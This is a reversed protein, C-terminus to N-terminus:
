PLSLPKQATVTIRSSFGFRSLNKYIRFLLYLLRPNKNLFKCISHGNEAGIKISFLFDRKNSQYKFKLSVFGTNKLLYLIHKKSPLYLHTPLQLVYSYKRFLTFSGNALPLTIYIVGGPPLLHFCKKLFKWPNYVHEIVMSAIILDFKQKTKFNEFAINKVDLGMKKGKQAAYKNPEIGIAKWGIKKAILLNKGYACGIDLITKIKKPNKVGWNALTQPINVNKLSFDQNDFYSLNKPYFKKIFKSKIRPNQFYLKCRKCKSLYFNGPFHTLHDKATLVVKIKPSGCLPCRTLNRFLNEKM